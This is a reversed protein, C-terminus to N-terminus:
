STFINRLEQSAINLNDNVIVYNYESQLELEKLANSLRLKLSEPSETNRATLRKKLEEISPPAIFILVADPMKNRVQLAGQVDIELLVNRGQNLENVVDNKLTGYYHGHVYAYELFANSKIGAEFKEPTIFRYEIGDTEGARPERTTCSISYVLDPINKLAHERLTGKGAGSPGSLVFLKGTM